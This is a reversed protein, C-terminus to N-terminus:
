ARRKAEPSNQISAKIQPLTKGTKVWFAIETTTVTRGLYATYYQAIQKKKSEDSDRIGVRIAESTKNQKDWRDLESTSPTRKLYTRYWQTIALRIATPNEPAPKPMNTPTAPKVPAIAPDTGGADMVYPPLGYERIVKDRQQGQVYSLQAGSLYSQLAVQAAGPSTGQAGLLAVGRALWDDNTETSATETAGTYPAVMVTGSPTEPFLEGASSAAESSAADSTGTDAKATTKARWAYVALIIVGGGLLYLVPVGLFKKHTLTKTTAIIPTTNDSV